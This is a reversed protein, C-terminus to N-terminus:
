EARAAGVPAGRVDESDPGRVDGGPQRHFPAMEPVTPEDVEPPRDTAALLGRELRSTYTVVLTTTMRGAIKGLQDLDDQDVDMERLEAGTLSVPEWGEVEPSEGTTLFQDWAESGKPALYKLSRAILDYTLGLFAGIEDEGLKSVEIGATAYKAALNRLEQPFAGAAVLAPVNPLRVLARQGTPLEVPRLATAQWQLLANAKTM